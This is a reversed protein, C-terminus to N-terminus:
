HFLASLRLTAAKFHFKEEYTKLRVSIHDLIEDVFKQKIKTFRTAVKVTELLCFLRGSM